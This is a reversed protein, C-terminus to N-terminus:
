HCDAPRTGAAAHGHARDTTHVRYGTRDQHADADVVISTLLGFILMVM